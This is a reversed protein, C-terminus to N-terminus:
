ALVMAESQQRPEIPRSVRQSQLRQTLSEVDMELIAAALRRFAQDRAANPATMPVQEM